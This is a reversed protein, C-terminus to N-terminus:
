EGPLHVTSRGAGTLAGDLPFVCIGQAPVQGALYARLWESKLRGDTLAAYLSPWKRQFQESQSLRAFSSVAGECVLADLVNFLADRRATMGHDYIAQRFEILKNINEKTTRQNNV